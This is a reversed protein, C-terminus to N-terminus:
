VGGLNWQKYKLAIADVDSNMDNDMISDLNQLTIKNRIVHMQEVNELFLGIKGTLEICLTSYQPLVVECPETRVLSGLWRVPMDVAINLMAWTLAIVFALWLVFIIATIIADYPLNMRFETRKNLIQQVVKM